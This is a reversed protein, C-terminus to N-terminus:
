EWSDTVAFGLVKNGGMYIQGTTKIDTFTEFCNEGSPFGGVAFSRKVTDWFTIPKGIDLTAYYHKVGIKDSVEIHFDWKYQKDCTVEAEVGNQLMIADVFKICNMAGFTSSIATIKGFDNPLQYKSLNKNQSWAYQEFVKSEVNNYVVAVYEAVGSVSTKYYYISGNECTVITESGSESLFDSSTTPFNFKLIKGSLDDGVALDKDNWGSNLPVSDSHQRYQLAIRLENKNNISSYNANVKVKTTDEYNNVRVVSVQADPLKYDLISVNCSITTSNGRSDIVKLYLKSDQAVDVTGFNVDDDNYVTKIVGNFTLEYKTITAGKKATAEYFKATLYSANRIIKTADQTVAYTNSNTDIYDLGHTAPNANIINMKADAISSYLQNNITTELKYTVELENSDTCKNRLLTRESETLVFSYKGSNEINNRVILEEEDVVLKIKLPYNSGAKNFIVNPVGEDNFDSVFTLLAQRPIKDLTITDTVTIKEVYVGSITARLYFTDTITCSKSGDALHQVEHVTTGLDVTTNGGNCIAKSVYSKTSTDVTCNNTRAGIDLDYGRAQVLKHQVTVISKNELLQPVSNWETKLTYGRYNNLIVGSAM